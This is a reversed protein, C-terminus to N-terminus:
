SIKEIKAVMVTMDDKPKGFNYDIAESLIIDAIKQASETQMDELLFKVWLEKNEYQENADLIGDTCMVLIDNPVIDRDYVTLDIHDLIGAPLSMNKIVDVQKRNKIFTPCAGNKIFEINGKYLDFIAIDLTAYSEEKASLCMSSNILDISSEKDFGSILLRKLMKIAIKSSKRAEPGSGMGDSLVFLEKGDELTLKLHSDGSIMSESKKTTAIGMKIQFKNASAYEFYCYETEEKLPCKTAQLKINEQYFKSLVKEIKDSNCEAMHGLNCPDTYLKIRRRGNSQQMINIKSIRIGKQKLLEEIEKEEKKDEEPMKDIDEALSSIMKSIGDLQEGMNKKNEDLKKTWIFHIKSIRYSTNITRVVDDVEKKIKKNTAGEEIGLIYHSNEEMIKLFEERTMIENELMYHFIVELIVNNEETMDEYLFNDELELMNRKLEKLFIAKNEEKEIEHDEVVTAAVEKYTKAVESIAESVNNLKYITEENQELRKEPVKPLYKTKGFLDEINIKISKPIALLGISAILIEQFMIISETNGNAVYTLIGNGIIFGAVVGIKGLKNLLGALMGSIAYAAVQVPDGTGIIGLVVGITIGSTAGVLVGNQWGLILVLLISLINKISYNWISIDKFGSIAIAIILSAGIVEEISFAKKIQFDRIVNISGAFIKYFVCASIAFMISQLFDYVLFQGMFMRAIQTIFCAIALHIGIRKQYRTEEISPRFFVMLLM